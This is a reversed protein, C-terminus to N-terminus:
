SNRSKRLAIILFTILLIYGILSFVTRWLWSQFDQRIETHSALVDKSVITLFELRSDLLIQGQSDTAATNSVPAPNSKAEELVADETARLHRTTKEPAIPVRKQYMELEFLTPFDEPALQPFKVAHEVIEQMYVFLTINLIWCTPLIFGGFFLRPPLFRYETYVRCSECECTYSKTQREFPPLAYEVVTLPSSLRAM